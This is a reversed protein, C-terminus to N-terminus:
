FEEDEFEGPQEAGQEPEQYTQDLNEDYAKTIDEIDIVEDDFVANGVMFEDVYRRPMTITVLWIPKTNLKAKTTGPIYDKATIIREPVELIGKEYTIKCDYKLLRLGGDPDPMLKHPYMLTVSIWYRSIFPGEVVEGVTWNKYAYVHNMDLVREFELLIDLLTHDRNVRTLTSNIQEINRKM